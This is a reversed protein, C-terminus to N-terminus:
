FTDSAEVEDVQRRRSALRLANSPMVRDQRAASILKGLEPLKSSLTRYLLLGIQRTPVSSDSIAPKAAIRRSRQQRRSGSIRCVMRESRQDGDRHRSAAGVNWDIASVPNDAPLSKNSKRAYNYIARLTRMSGNAIYPGNEKTIDDHKTVVKAPDLGLEQLPSDLWEVFIREVHDRYSEITRESRGKRIM